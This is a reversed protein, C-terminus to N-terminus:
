SRNISKRKSSFLILAFVVGTVVAINKIFGAKNYKWEGRYGREVFFNPVIGKKLDQVLAEIMGVRDAIVLPFWHAYTSESHKFAYRRINGSVGEPPTSTGFVRTITPREISQLIEVDIAQQPAKEYDMRRHDSGDYKKMPYTPDNKPDADMGWGPIHKFKEAM